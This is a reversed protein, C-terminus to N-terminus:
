AFIFSKASEEASPPDADPQDVRYQSAIRPFDDGFLPLPLALDIPLGFIAPVFVGGVLVTWSVFRVFTWLSM